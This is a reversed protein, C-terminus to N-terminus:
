SAGHCFSGSFECIVMGEAIYLIRAADAFLM